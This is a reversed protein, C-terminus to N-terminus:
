KKASRISINLVNVITYQLNLIPDLISHFIQNIIGKM